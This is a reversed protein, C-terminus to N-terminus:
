NAVMVKLIPVPVVKGTALSKATAVPNVTVSAVPTVSDFMLTVMWLTVKLYNGACASRRSLLAVGRLNGKQEFM